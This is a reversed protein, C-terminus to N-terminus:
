SVLNAKLNIEITQLANSVPCGVKAAEAIELFAAAEINPVKAETNLEIAIVRWGEELKDFQLRAVTKVWEPPFGARDLGASLAMSFCGAHAAALLEEPNTGTGDEFRSDFTYPTEIGREGIRISGNGERLTGDWRASSQRIKM